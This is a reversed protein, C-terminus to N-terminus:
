LAGLGASYLQQHQLCYASSQVPDTSSGTSTSSSSSSRVTSCPALVTQLRLLSSPLWSSEMVPM